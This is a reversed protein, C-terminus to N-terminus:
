VTVEALAPFRDEDGEKKIHGRKWTRRGKRGQKETRKRIETRTKKDEEKETKM